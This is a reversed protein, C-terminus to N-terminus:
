NPRCHPPRKQPPAMESTVMRNYREVYRFVATDALVVQCHDSPPAGHRFSPGLLRSSNLMEEPACESGPMLKAPFRGLSSLHYLKATGNKVDVSADIDPKSWWIKWFNRDADSLYCSTEVWDAVAKDLRRDLRRDIKTVVLSNNQPGTKDGPSFIKILPLEIKEDTVIQVPSLFGCALARELRATIEETTLQTQATVGREISVRFFLRYAEPWNPRGIKCEDWGLDRQAPLVQAFSGSPAVTFFLGVLPIVGFLCCVVSRSLKV